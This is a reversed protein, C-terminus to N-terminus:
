HGGNPKGILYFLIRGHIASEVRVAMELSASNKIYRWIQALDLAAEPVLFYSM